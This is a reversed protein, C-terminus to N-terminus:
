TYTQPYQTLFPKLQLDSKLVHDIVWHRLLSVLENVDEDSAAATPEDLEARVAGGPSDGSDAEGEAVAAPEAVGAAELIRARLATLQALINQHEAKHALYHPYQIKLQIVEERAFHDRTYQMLQEIAVGVLDGNGPVRLSLEVTNILCILYRHDSDILTNGVSMQPRWVLPM